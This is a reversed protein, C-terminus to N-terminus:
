EDDDNNVAFVGEMEVQTQASQNSAIMHELVNLVGCSWISRYDLVPYEPEQIRSANMRWTMHNAGPRVRRSSSSLAAM